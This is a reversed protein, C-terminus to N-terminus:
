HLKKSVEEIADDILSNGTDATMQTAIIDQAAGVAVVIAQDRVDKVAAAQASAIQEEAGAIRREVSAAIDAKAKVAAASAEEKATEVIRDAQAQVEAQKKEYSALLTQADERLKKAEDLDAQIGAARDDLLKGLMKPVGLYLLIGIFLLFSILVVFNTNWLSPTLGDAALVPTAFLAFVASLKKM